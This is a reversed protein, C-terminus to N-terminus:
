IIPVINNVFTFIALILLYLSFWKYNAKKIIKLMFKIAVYGSFAAFFMGIIIATIDASPVGSGKVFQKYIEVLAAGAIVPISMLFAFNANDNRNVRMITGGAITSGSRSIGPIIALAQFLGTVVSSKLGVSKNGIKKKSYIETCYLIIATILFGYCLFNGSYFIKDIGDGFIVGIIAAPISAIILYMLMKLNKFLGIIDKFFVISLSLLTGIHLMVGLFMQGAELDVNLLKQFFILHGSSSVPLFETFGQVIGLVIAKWIEM